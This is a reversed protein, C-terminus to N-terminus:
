IWAKFEAFAQQQRESLEGLYGEPEVPAKEKKKGWGFM